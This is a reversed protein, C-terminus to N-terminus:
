VATEPQVLNYVSPVCKNKKVSFLNRNERIYHIRIITKEGDAAGLEKGAGGM